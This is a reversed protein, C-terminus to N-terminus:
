FCFPNCYLFLVSLRSKIILHRLTVESGVLIRKGLSVVVLILLFFRQCNSIKSLHLKDLAWYDIEWMNLVHQGNLDRHLPMAHM